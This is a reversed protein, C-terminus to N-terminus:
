AKQERCSESSRTPESRKKAAEDIHGELVLPNEVKAFETLYTYTYYTVRISRVEALGGHDEGVWPHAFKGFSGV